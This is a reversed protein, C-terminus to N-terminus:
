IIKWSKEFTYINPGSLVLVNGNVRDQMDEEPYRHLNAQNHSIFEKHYKIYFLNSLPM